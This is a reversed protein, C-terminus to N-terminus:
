KELRQYHALLYGGRNNALMSLGVVFALIRRGHTSRGRRWPPLLLSVLAPAIFIGMMAGMGKRLNGMPALDLRLVYFVLVAVYLAVNVTLLM